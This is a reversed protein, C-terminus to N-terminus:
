ITNGQAGCIQDVMSSIDETNTKYYPMGENVIGEESMETNNQRSQNVQDVINNVDETSIENIINYYVDETCNIENVDETGNAPIDSFKLYKRFQRYATSTCKM